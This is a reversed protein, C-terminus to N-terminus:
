ICIMDPSVDTQSYWTLQQHYNKIEHQCVSPNDVFYLRHSKVIVNQQGSAAAYDACALVKAATSAFVLNPKLRIM